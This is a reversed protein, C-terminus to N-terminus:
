YTLIEDAESQRGLLEALDKLNERAEMYDSKMAVARAFNSFASEHDGNAYQIAGLDNYNAAHNPYLNIAKALLEVARVSDGSTFIRRAESNFEQSNVAPHSRREPIVGWKEVFIQRNKEMLADWKASDIEMGSFTRNGYHYVFCDEAICLRYGARSVRLCYDDDEFNGIGFSEDFLGVEEVVKDRIMMCFGVLRLTDTLKGKMKESLENAFVTVEDLSEMELDDIQQPGSVYNSKPGVMGTKESELLANKLRGLWGRPVLTDSNLLVVHGEAHELGLNVGGAFGCNTESHVVIADEISDFFESVGDTSGNDVLILRYPHQTNIEISYLCQQCCEIQNFAPIIISVPKDM